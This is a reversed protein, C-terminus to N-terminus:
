GRNMVENQRSISELHIAELVTRLFSESLNCKRAQAIVKDMISNWRNNQLIAVNNARKVEGIREAVNMRRALLDFLEADIQDIEDRLEKLSRIFGPDEVSEKRWRISGLLKVLDEPVLQQASDSWAQEPRIHSEVILGDYNLDAAKQSVEHLLARNGTIHSPDCIMTLEPFRRHMEIALHWMPANRYESHGFYSFGRHILGIDEMRIGVKALRSVAGAWLDIDPNMPNKVMVAVDTGRLADAIDQVSFPSVTTRAGIWVADVGNELAIEVHKSTAVEVTIPIGTKRKVENLWEFAIPGSGEFSGPNTRPKWVGARIADVTGSEALAMCTELTQERTEASCPGAIILPRTSKLSFKKGMTKHKLNILKVNLPGRM